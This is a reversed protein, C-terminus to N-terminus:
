RYHGGDAMDRMESMPLAISGSLFAHRTVEPRLERNPRETWRPM